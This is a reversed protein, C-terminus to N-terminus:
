GVRFRKAFMQYKDALEAAQDAATDLTLTEHRYGLLRDLVAMQESGFRVTGDDAIEEIGDFRAGDANIAVADELTLGQPLVVAPSGHDIFSVPYGGPLGVPGPAHVVAGTDNALADLVAFASSATIPMGALGGTRRFDRAVGQGLAEADIQDTVDECDLLIRIASRAGGADGVASYRHSVFHHMFARVEISAVPADLQAAASHRLAAVTNSV